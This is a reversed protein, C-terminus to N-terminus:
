AAPLSGERGGQRLRESRRDLREQWRLRFRRDIGEAEALVGLARRTWAAAEAPDHAAHEYHIAMQECAELITELLERREASGEANTDEPDEQALERWLSNAVAREGDRRAIRALRRQAARRLMAPLGADLAMEYLHRARAREGRREFLRSLGYLELPEAGEPAVLLRALHGALAALGALDMQNHRFVQGLPEPGAGRLYDFYMQPILESLLDPGREIGLVGRELATLRVSGLQLRWLQRAPHLLDLHAQPPQPEIERTLRFRTEVLPWDFSKGNFTVLVRRAELREALALLVAHEEAYDRLFLQEIALGGAEWWALGVLFACTGTGGALGTTETDLFLWGDSRGIEGLVEAAPEPKAVLGLAQPQTCPEPQALWRRVRLFEGYRNREITGGVLEALRDRGGRRGDAQPAVEHSAALKRRLAAIAGLRDDNLWKM